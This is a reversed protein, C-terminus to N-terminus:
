KEELFYVKFNVKPLKPKRKVNQPKFAFVKKQTVRQKLVMNLALRVFNM